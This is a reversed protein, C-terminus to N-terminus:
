KKKNNNGQGNKNFSKNINPVLIVIEYSDIYM